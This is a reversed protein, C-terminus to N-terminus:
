YNGLVHVQLNTEGERSILCSYTFKENDIDQLIHVTYM